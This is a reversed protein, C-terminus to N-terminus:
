CDSLLGGVKAAVFDIRKIVIFGYPRGWGAEYERASLYRDARDAPREANLIIRGACLISDLSSVSLGCTAAFVRCPTDLGIVYTDRRLSNM